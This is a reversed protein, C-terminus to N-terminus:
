DVLGFATRWVQTPRLNQYPPESIHAGYLDAIANGITEATNRHSDIFEVLDPAAGKTSAYIVQRREYYSPHNQREQPKSGKIGLRTIASRIFKEYVGVIRNNESDKIGLRRKAVREITSFVHLILTAGCYAGIISLGRLIAEDKVGGERASRDQALMSYALGMVDAESEQTRSLTLIEASQEGYQVVAASSESFHRQAVHTLEHGLIFQMITLFINQYVRGRPLPPRSFDLSLNELSGFILADIITMLANAPAPDSAHHRDITERSIEYALAGQVSGPLPVFDGCQSVFRAVAAALPILGVNFMFVVYPEGKPKMATANLGAVPITAIAYSMLDTRPLAAVSSGYLQIADELMKSLFVYYQIIEYRSLPPRNAYATRYKSMEKVALTAAAPTQEYASAFAELQVIWQEVEEPTHICIPLNARRFETLQIAEIFKGLHEM